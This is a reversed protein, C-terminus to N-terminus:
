EAHHESHQPEEHVSSRAWRREREANAATAARPSDGASRRCAAIGIVGRRYRRGRWPDRGGAPWPRSPEVLHDELIEVRHEVMASGGHGSQDPLENTLQQGGAGRGNRHDCFLEVADWPM